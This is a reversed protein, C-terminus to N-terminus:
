EIDLTDGCLLEVARVVLEYKELRKELKEIYQDKQELQDKLTAIKIQDQRHQKEADGIEIKINETMSMDENEKEEVSGPIVRDWCEICSDWDDRQGCFDPDELYGYCSPCGYLGDAFAQDSYRPHEKSLREKCTESM